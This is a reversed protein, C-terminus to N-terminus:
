SHIPSRHQYVFDKFFKGYISTGIVLGATGATLGFAHDIRGLLTLCFTGISGITVIASICHNVLPRSVHDFLYDIVTLQAYSSYREVGTGLTKVLVKIQHSSAHCDDKPKALFRAVNLREDLSLAVAGSFEIEPCFIEVQVQEGPRIATRDKETDYDDPRGGPEGLDRSVIERAEVRAGELHLIILIKSERGKSLKNPHAVMISFPDSGEEVQLPPTTLEPPKRGVDEEGKKPIRNDKAAGVEHPPATQPRIGVRSYRQANELSEIMEDASVFRSAPDKAIAISIVRFLEDSIMPGGYGRADPWSTVVSESIEEKTAAAFPQSGTLMEYLVVGLSYIDTRTSLVSGLIEEPSRYPLEYLDSISGLSQYIGFDLLKVTGDEGIFITSPNVRRHIMGRSHAYGIAMAVKAATDIAEEQSMPGRSLRDKLLEGEQWPSVFVVDGGSLFMGYLPQISPHHLGMAAKAERILRHRVGEDIFLDKDLILLVVARDHIVDHAKFTTVMSRASLEALVRYRDANQGVITL